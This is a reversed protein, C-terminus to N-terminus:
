AYQLILYNFTDISIKNTHQHAFEHDVHKLTSEPLHDISRRLDPIILIKTMDYYSPYVRDIRYIIHSSPWMRKIVYDDKAYQDVHEIAVIGDPVTTYLTCETGFIDVPM